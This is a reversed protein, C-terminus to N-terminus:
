LGPQGAEGPAVPAAPDYGNQTPLAFAISLGRQGRSLNELFRRNAQRADGFGAYTRIIWPERPRSNKKVEPAPSTARSMPEGFRKAIEIATERSRLPGRAGIGAAARGGSSSTVAGGWCREGRPRSRSARSERTRAAM